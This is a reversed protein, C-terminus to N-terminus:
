QSGPMKMVVECGHKVDAQDASALRFVACQGGVWHGLKVHFYYFQHTRASGFAIAVKTQVSKQLGHMEFMLQLGNAKCIDQLEKRFKGSALEAGRCARLPCSRFLKCLEPSFGHEISNRECKEIHRITEWHCSCCGAWKVGDKQLVMRRM